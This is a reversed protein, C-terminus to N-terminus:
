TCNYLFRLIIKNKNKYFYEQSNYVNQKESAHYQGYNKFKIKIFIVDISNSNKIIKKILNTKQEM